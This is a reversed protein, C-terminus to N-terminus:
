STKEDESGRYRVQKSVSAVTIGYRNKRAEIDFGSALINDIEEIAEKTLCKLNDLTIQSM